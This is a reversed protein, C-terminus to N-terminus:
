TEAIRASSWPSAVIRQDCPLTAREGFIVPWWSTGSRRISSGHVTLVHGRDAHRIRSVCPRSPLIATTIVRCLQRDIEAGPGAASAASKTARPTEGDGAAGWGAAGVGGGTSVIVPWGPWRM